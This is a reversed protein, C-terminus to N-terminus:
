LILVDLIMGHIRVQRAEYHDSQRHLYLPPRSVSLLLDCACTSWMRCISNVLCSVNEIRFGDCSRRPKGFPSYIPRRLLGELSGVSGLPCRGWCVLVEVGFGVELTVVTGLYPTKRFHPSTTTTCDGLDGGSSEGPPAGCHESRSVGRIADNQRLHDTQIYILGSGGTSQQPTRSDQKHDKILTKYKYDPRKSM